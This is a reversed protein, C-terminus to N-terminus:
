SLVRPRSRVAALERVLTGCLGPLGRHHSTMPATMFAEGRRCEGSGLEFMRHRTNAEMCPIKPTQSGICVGRDEVGDEQSAPVKRDGRCDKQPRDTLAM